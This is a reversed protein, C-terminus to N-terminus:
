SLFHCKRANKAKEDSSLALTLRTLTWLKSYFHKQLLIINKWNNTMIGGVHNTPINLPCYIIATDLMGDTHRGALKVHKKKIHVDLTTQRGDESLINLNLHSICM